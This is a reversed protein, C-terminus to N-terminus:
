SSPPDETAYGWSLVQLLDDDHLEAQLRGRRNLPHEPPRGGRRRKAEELIALEGMAAELNGLVWQERLRDAQTTFWTLAEYRAQLRARHDPGLLHTCWRVGSRCHFVEDSLIYELAHVIDHQGAVARRRIDHALSDLALGEMFTQPDAHAM